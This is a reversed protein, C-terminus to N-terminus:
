IHILSLDELSEGARIRTQIERPSLASEMHIELHPNTPPPQRVSGSTDGARDRSTM